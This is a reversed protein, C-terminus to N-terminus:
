NRKYLGICKQEHEKVCLVCLFDDIKIYQYGLINTDQVIM